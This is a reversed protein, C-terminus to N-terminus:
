WTTTALAFGARSDDTPGLNRWVGGALDLVATEGGIINIGPFHSIGFFIWLSGQIAAAGFHTLGVSSFEYSFLSWGVPTLQEFSGALTQIHNEGGLVFVTNDFVAAAGFARSTNLSPGLSWPAGTPLPPRTLVQRSAAHDHNYGGIVFLTNNHAVTMHGFLPQLLSPESRWNAEGPGWSLVTATPVGSIRGGVVWIREALVAAAFDYRQQPLDPVLGTTWGGTRSALVLTPTHSSDQQPTLGGLLVIRDNHTVAAARWRPHPLSPGDRWTQGDTCRVSSLNTTSDYGGIVCATTATIPTPMLQALQQAQANVQTQLAALTHTTNNAYASLAALQALVDVGNLLIKGPPSVTGNIHLNGSEDLSFRFQDSPPTNAANTFVFPRVCLLAAVTLLRLLKPM